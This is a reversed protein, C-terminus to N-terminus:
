TEPNTDWKSRTSYRKIHFYFNGHCKINCISVSVVDDYVTSVCVWVCVCVGELCALNDTLAGVWAVGIIFRGNLFLLLRTRRLMKTSAGLKYVLRPMWWPKKLLSKQELKYWLRQWAMWCLSVWFLSVWFLSMWCLLLYSAVSLVIVYLMVVTDNHQTDDHQADNHQIDNHQTGHYM